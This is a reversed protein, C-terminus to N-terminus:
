ALQEGFVIVEEVFENFALDAGVVDVGIGAQAHAAGHRAVLLRQSRVRRGSAVVIHVMCAADEDNAAVGGIRMRDQKSANFFGFLAIRVEFDNKSVRAFSIGSLNGIQIQRQQGAGIDGQEVAQQVDHEPFAPQIGSVDGSVRLAKFREFSQHAVIRGLMHRLNAADFFFIQESGGLEDRETARLLGAGAQGREAQIALTQVLRAAARSFVGRQDVKM